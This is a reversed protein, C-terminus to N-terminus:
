IPINPRRSPLESFLPELYERSVDEPLVTKNNEDVIAASYGHAQGMAEIRFTSKVSDCKIIWNAADLTIEFSVENRGPGPIIRVRACNPDVPKCDTYEVEIQGAPTYIRTYDNIAQRLSLKVDRWLEPGDRHLIAKSRADDEVWGM